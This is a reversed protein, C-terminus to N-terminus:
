KIFIGPIEFIEVGPFISNLFSLKRESPFTWCTVKLKRTKKLDVLKTNMKEQFTAQDEPIETILIHLQTEGILLYTVNNGVKIAEWSADIGSQKEILSLCLQVSNNENLLQNMPIGELKQMDHTGSYNTTSIQGLRWDILESFSEDNNIILGSSQNVVERKALGIAAAAFDPYPCLIPLGPRHFAELVFSYFGSPKGYEPKLGTFAKLESTAVTSLFDAGKGEITQGHFEGVDSLEQKNLILSRVVKIGPDRQKFFVSWTGSTQKEFRIEGKSLDTLFRKESRLWSIPNGHEDFELISGDPCTIPYYSRGQKRRFTDWFYRGEEDEEKYRSLDQDNKAMRIGSVNQNKGYALITEHELAIYTKDNGGGARSQYVLEGLFSKFGFVQDLANRILMYNDPQALAILIGNSDLVRSALRLSAILNITFHYRYDPDDSVFDKTGLSGDTNAVVFNAANRTSARPPDLVVLGISEPHLISISNLLELPPASLNSLFSPDPLSIPLISETSLRRTIEFAKLYASDLSNNM